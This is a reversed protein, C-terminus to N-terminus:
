QQVDVDEAAAATQGSRMIQAVEKLEHTAHELGGVASLDISPVLPKAFGSAAPSASQALMGSPMVALALAVSAGVGAYTRTRDRM